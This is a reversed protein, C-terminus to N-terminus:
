RRGASRTSSGVLWRTRRGSRRIARRCRRSQTTSACRGRRGGGRGPRGGGCPGRRASEGAGPPFRVAFSRGGARWCGGRRWGGGGGGGGGWAWLRATKGGGGM